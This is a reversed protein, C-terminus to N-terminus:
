NEETDLCGQSFAAKTYGENKKFEEQWNEKASQYVANNIEPTGLSCTPLLQDKAIAPDVCATDFRYKDREAKNRLNPVAMKVGGNLISRYAFMGPLFMDLAEYVDIVDANVNGKLRDIFNSLCHYDSGYHGFQLLNEDLDVKYCKHEGEKLSLNVGAVGRSGEIERESEITAKSGYLSYWISSGKLFCSILAKMIGGNEFTILVMGFQGGKAGVLLNRTNKTGEIGVVSVPRLGTSHVIPGIAHTCYFTSYMNNRWHNENGYTISQWYPFCDHVYEGEGYEFEGITGNQYLKKMEMTCPLYCFNEGYCYIKGTQEVAEILNVAEQMTQCPLVESYVHKGAKMAKIAFKAHETAYNALVVADMDHKIFEDFDDYYTISDDNIIEKQRELADKWKDCLAVIEAMGTFRFTNIMSSGRYVGFVGIKIKKM